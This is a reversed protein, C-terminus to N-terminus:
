VFVDLVKGIASIDFTDYTSSKYSVGYLIHKPLDIKHYKNSVDYLILVSPDTHLLNTHHITCLRGNHDFNRLKTRYIM